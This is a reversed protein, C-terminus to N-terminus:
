IALSYYPTSLVECGMSEALLLLEGFEHWNQRMLCHSFGM